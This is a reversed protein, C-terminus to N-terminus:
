GSIDRRAGRYLKMYSDAMSQLSFHAEFADQANRCFQEREEQNRTLRLMAASMERPDGSPVIIGANALRVVEAMGGVDTVIAPLGVSFAQLLSMPLGESLSSMVFADAACFFRAVDLQQGWFKVHDSIKLTATLQELAKRQTGDGVIWLGLTPDSSVASCFANLLLEHNKVPELRGVYVFTLGQKSHCEQHDNRHVPVTGNYIRTIKGRPVTGLEKINNTTADCIGVVWDCFKAAIAYKREM